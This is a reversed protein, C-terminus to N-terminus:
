GPAGATEREAPNAPLRGNQAIFRAYWYHAWEDAGRGIPTVVSYSVALLLYVVLVALLNRHRIIIALM